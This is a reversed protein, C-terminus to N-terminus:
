CRRRALDAPPRFRRDGAHRLQEEDAGASRSVGPTRTSRSRWATWRSNAASWSRRGASASGAIRRSERRRRDARGHGVATGRPLESRLARVIEGWVSIARPIWISTGYAATIREAISTKGNGPRGYLFLGQGSTIARGLRFFMEESLTLDAFARRLDHIRPKVKRLSQAAVGAVYDALSVPAAGCYSCQEAYRRARHLGVDTMEYVYDNLTAPSKFILLRHAKLGHLLKEVLCFPLALQQSIEVGTATGRHMLFRLIIAEVESEAIDAGAALSRPAVPFFSSANDSALGQGPEAQGAPTGALEEDRLPSRIRAPAAHADAGHREGRNASGGSALTSLQDLLGDLNGAGETSHM